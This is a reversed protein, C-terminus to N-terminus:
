HNHQWFVRHMLASGAALLVPIFTLLFGARMGNTDFGHTYHHGHLHTM